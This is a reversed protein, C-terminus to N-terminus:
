CGARKRRQSRQGWRRQQQSQFSSCARESSSESARWRRPRCRSATLSWWPGPHQQPEPEAATFPHITIYQYVMSTTKNDTHGTRDQQYIPMCASTKFPYLIATIKTPIIWDIRNLEIWNVNQFKDQYFVEHVFKRPWRCEMLSSFDIAGKGALM